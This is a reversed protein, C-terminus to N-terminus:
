ILISGGRCASTCFVSAYCVFFLSIKLQRFIAKHSVGLLFLQRSSPTYVSRAGSEYDFVTTSLLETAQHKSPVMKSEADRSEAFLDCILGELEYVKKIKNSSGLFVRM